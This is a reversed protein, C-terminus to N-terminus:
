LFEPIEYGNVFTDTTTADVTETRHVQDQTKSQIRAGTRDEEWRLQQFGLSPKGWEL